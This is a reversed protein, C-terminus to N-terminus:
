CNEIEDDDEVLLDTIDITGINEMGLRIIDDCSKDKIIASNFRKIKASEDVLDSFNESLTLIGIAVVTNVPYSGKRGVLVGCSVAGVVLVIIILLLIQTNM